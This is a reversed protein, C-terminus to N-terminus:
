RDKSNLCVQVILRAVTSKVVGEKAQIAQHSVEYFRLIKLTIPIEKRFPIQNVLIRM